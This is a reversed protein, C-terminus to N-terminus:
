GREVVDVMDGVDGRENDGSTSTCSVSGVITAIAFSLILIIKRM